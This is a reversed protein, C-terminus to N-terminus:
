PEIVLTTVSANPFLLTEPLTGAYVPELNRSTSTEYATLSFWNRNELHIQALIPQSGPNIVVVIIRKRDPSQFASVRLEPQDTTAMILQYGPRVFKSFNGFSWLRKTETITQNGPDVYLLGDHYDYKSVAIWYQWAAAKGITLDEHITSALTLASDMGVDRGAQLQVWETMWIRLDPQRSEILKAFSEKDQRSSYYSHVAFIDLAELANPNQELAELYTSGDSWNGSEPALIKVPLGAQQIKRSLADLVKVVGEPTYHCGEQGSTINWDWQPENVPSIWGIPIDLDERLHRVIDILYQAYAEEQNLGLNSTGDIAGSVMGSRTLRPPPSNSFAILQQVGAAYVMKLIVVANADRTWDYVGRTIEFSETRRWPDPIEAGGGAGINYRYATLGIGENPDFLLQIVRERNEPQWGGVEQAWWAGSVGFNEITQYALDPNITIKSPEEQIIKGEENPAKHPQCAGLWLNILLFVSIASLKSLNRQM